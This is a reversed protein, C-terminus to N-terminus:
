PIPRLEFHGAVLRGQQLHEDVWVRTPTGLAASSQPAGQGSATPRQLERSLDVREHQERTKHVQHEVVMGAVNGILGGLPVGVGPAIAGGAVSGIMQGLQTPSVGACGAVLVSSMLVVIPTRSM